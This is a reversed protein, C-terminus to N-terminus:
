LQRKTHGKARRWVRKKRERERKREKERERKGEKEREAKYKSNHLFKAGGLPSDGFCTSSLITCNKSSISNGCTVASGNESTGLMAM